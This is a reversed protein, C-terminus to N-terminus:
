RSHRGALFSLASLLIFLGVLLVTWKAAVDLGFLTACLALLVVGVLALLIRGARM